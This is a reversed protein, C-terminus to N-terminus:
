YCVKVSLDTQYESETGQNEERLTSVSSTNDSMEYEAAEPVPPLTCVGIFFL